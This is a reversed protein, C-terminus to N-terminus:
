WTCLALSGISFGGLVLVTVPGTAADGARL